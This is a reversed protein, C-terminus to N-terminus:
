TLFENSDAVSCYVTTRLLFLWLEHFIGFEPICKMWCLSKKRGRKKPEHAIRTLSLCKSSTVTTRENHTHETQSSVAVFSSTFISSQLSTSVQERIAHFETKFNRNQTKFNRNWPNNRESDKFDLFEAKSHSDRM